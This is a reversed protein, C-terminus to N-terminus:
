RCYKNQYENMIWAIASSESDFSDPYKSAWFATVNIKQSYHDYSLGASEVQGNSGIEPTIWITKTDDKKLNSFLTTGGDQWGKDEIEFLCDGGNYDNDYPMSEYNGGEPILEGLLESGVKVAAIFVVGAMIFQELEDNHKYSKICSGVHKPNDLAKKSEISSTNGKAIAEDFLIRAKEVDLKVGGSGKLYAFALGAYSPPYDYTKVGEMFLYTSKETCFGYKLKCLYAYMNVASHCGKKIAKKYYEESKDHDSKVVNGSKYFWAIEKYGIPSDFKNISQQYLEYSREFNKLRRENEAVAELVFRDDSISKLCNISVDWLSDAKNQNKMVLLGEAYMNGLYYNALPDNKLSNSNLIRFGEKYNVKVNGEGRILHIGYETNAKILDKCKQANANLGFVLIVFITLSYKM